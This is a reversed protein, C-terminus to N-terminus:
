KRQYITLFSSVHFIPVKTLNISPLHFNNKSRTDHQNVQTNLNFLNRNNLVFLITSYIYYSYFTMLNNQVFINRCSETEKLNYIIRLIKRKIVFIRPAETSQGWFIIGYHIISQAQSLYIM